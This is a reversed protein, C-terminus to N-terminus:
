LEGNKTIIKDYVDTFARDAGYKNRLNFYKDGDHLKKYFDDRDYFAHSYYVKRGHHDSLITELLKNHEIFNFKKKPIGYTGINTFHGQITAGAFPAQRNNYKINRMPLFWIPWVKLLSQM